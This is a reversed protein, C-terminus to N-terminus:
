WDFGDQNADNVWGMLFGEEKENCDALKAGCVLPMWKQVYRKDTATKKCFADLYMKSGSIDGSMWFMLYTQAADASANGRTAKSWDVIYPEGEDSIVINSLVFDGHCLKNHKPMNELGSYLAYRTVAELETQEIKEGLEDKLRNFSPCSKSHMEIQLDVLLEIYEEKKEPNEEILMELTKGKIYRSVIAWKGEITTVELVKPVKLGLEEARAQKMAESIVDAKSYDSNFVKVCRNGDRYITKNNRVAIVRDLKM